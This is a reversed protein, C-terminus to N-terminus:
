RGKFIVFETKIHQWTALFFLDETM